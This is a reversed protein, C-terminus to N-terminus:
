YYVGHAMLVQDGGPLDPCFHNVVRLSGDLVHERRNAVDDRSLRAQPAIFKNVGCPERLLRCGGLLLGRLSVDVVHGGWTDNGEVGYGTSM